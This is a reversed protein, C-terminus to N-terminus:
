DLTQSLTGSPLIRIKYIGEKRLVTLPLGMHWFILEIWAAMKHAMGETGKEVRNRGMEGNKRQSPEPPYPCVATKAAVQRHKGM